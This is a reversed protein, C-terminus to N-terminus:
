QNVDDEPTGHMKFFLISEDLKEDNYHFSAKWRTRGVDLIIKQYLPKIEYKNIKSLKIKRIRNFPYQISIMDRDLKASSPVFIFFHVIVPVLLILIWEILFIVFGNDLLFTVIGYTNKFDIFFSYILMLILAIIFIGISMLSRRLLHSIRKKMVLVKEIM